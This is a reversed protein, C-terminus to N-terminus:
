KKKGIREALDDKDFTFVHGLIGFSVTTSEGDFDHYKGVSCVLYNNVYMRRQLMMDVLKSAFMSSLAGIADGESQLEEEVYEHCVSSVKQVHDERSPCTVALIALFLIVVVVPLVWKRKKPESCNPIEEYPVDEVPISEATEPANASANANSSQEYHAEPDSATAVPGPAQTPVMQENENVTGESQNQYNENNDM